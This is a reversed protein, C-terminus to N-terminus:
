DDFPFYIYEILTKPVFKGKTKDIRAYIDHVNEAYEKTLTRKLEANKLSESNPMEKVYQVGSAIHKRFISVRRSHDVATNAIIRNIPM